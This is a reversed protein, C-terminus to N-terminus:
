VRSLKNLCRYCNSVLFLFTHPYSTGRPVPLLRLIPSNFIANTMRWCSLFAFGRSDKSSLSCDMGRWKM